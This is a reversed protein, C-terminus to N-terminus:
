EISVKETGIAFKVKKIGFFSRKKPNPRLGERRSSRHNNGRNTDNGGNNNNDADQSTTPQINERNSHTPINPLLRPSNAQGPRTVPVFPKRKVPIQAPVVINGTSQTRRRPTSHADPEPQVMTQDLDDNQRMESTPTIFETSTDNSNSRARSPTTFGASDNVTATPTIPEPDNDASNQASSQDDPQVDHSMNSHSRTVPPQYNNLGSLLLFDLDDDDESDSDSDKVSKKDNKDPDPVNKTKSTNAMESDSQDPPIESYSNLKYHKLKQISVCKRKGDIKLIYNHDNIKEIIRYPGTWKEAYKHKPVNVLLMCYMGEEFYPGKINKDYMKTMYKAQLETTDRVKMAIEKIRKYTEYAYTQYATPDKTEVPTKIFFDRPTMLERGFVLFNSSYGTRRSKMCNLTFTIWPIYLDYNQFSNEKLVARFCQNIRRHCSEVRGQTSSKWPTSRVNKMGFVKAIETFLLSEFGSGKDHSISDPVGMKAMWQTLIVRVTEEATTTKVPICMIYSSWMDVITLLAVHGRPTKKKSPELHDIQICANFHNYIQPMVPAKLYKSPAKIKQCKICADVFLKIEKKMKYFYFHKACQDFTNDVGSHLNTVHFMHMIREVLLHPVITVYHDKSKDTSDIRKISLLGNTFKLLEFSTWYHFLEKNCKIPQISKLDPKTGQKIWSTVTSLVKDNKYSETIERNSVFEDNSNKQTKSCDQIRFIENNGLKDKQKSSSASSNQELLDSAEADTLCDDSNLSSKDDFLSDFESSSNIGSTQLESMQKICYSNDSDTESLNNEISMIHFSKIDDTQTEVSREPIGFSYRSLYDAMQIERSQGSVHEIKFQYGSLDAIRRQMYDNNKSFLTELNLLSKCDTQVVFKAGKLYIRYHQIASHLALFELKTPGWNRLHKPVRKSFYSVVRHTKYKPCYQSLVGALGAKSADITLIYSDYEDEIDPICLVPSKTLCAKIKQFAKQCDRSWVFQVGKQTLDYLPTAIEAFKPIYSRFYNVAGLFKQVTKVSTPPPLNNIAAVKKPDVSLGDKSLRHGLFNVEKAMFNTKKTSLKLNGFTLRDFVFRLRKLHEEYTSSSILFDDIYYIIDKFPVRQWLYSMCRTFESSSSTQGQLMRTWMYRQNNYEFATLERCSKQLGVQTFSSVFDLSSFIETEKLRDFINKIKPLQYNDQIVQRNLARADVVFRYSGSGPESGPDRGPKCVMFVPSSWLSYKCPVMQGSKKLNEIELDLHPRMKYSIPRSPVWKPVADHKLNLRAEYFSACGLDFRNRAFCHSYETVLKKLKERYMEPVHTMKDIRLQDILDQPKDWKGNEITEEISCADPLRKLDLTADYHDESSNLKRVKNADDSKPLPDFFGIIQNKYLTIDSDTVNVCHVPIINGQSYNITGTVVINSKKSLNKYPELIGEFNSGRLSNTSFKGDVFKTTRAPILVTKHLRVKRRNILRSPKQFFPVKQGPMDVQDQEFDLVMRFKRLSDIGLLFENDIHDSVIFTHKHYQRGINIELDIEGRMPVVKKSLGTIITATPKVYEMLGAVHVLRTAVLSVNAGSDLLFNVPHNKCFGQILVENTNSYCGHRSRHIKSPPENNSSVSTRM